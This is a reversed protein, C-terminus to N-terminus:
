KIKIRETKTRATDRLQSVDAGHEEFLDCLWEEHGALIIKELAQKVAEEDNKRIM